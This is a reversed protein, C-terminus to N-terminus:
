RTLPRESVKTVKSCYRTGIAPICTVDIKPPYIRVSLFLNALNVRNVEFAVCTKTLSEIYRCTRLISLNVNNTM